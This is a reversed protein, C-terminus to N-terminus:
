VYIIIIGPSGNGGLTTSENLRNTTCSMCAGGGNGYGSADGGKSDRICMKTSKGSSSKQTTVGTKEDYDWGAEKRIANAKAHAEAMAEKDGRRKAANYARGWGNLEAKLQEKTKKAM